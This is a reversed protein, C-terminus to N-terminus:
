SMVQGLGPVSPSTQSICVVYCRTPSDLCLLATSGSPLRASTCPVMCLAGESSRERGCSGLCAPTDLVQM